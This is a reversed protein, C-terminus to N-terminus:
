KSYLRKNEFALIALGSYDISNELERHQMNIIDVVGSCVAFVHGHNITTGVEAKIQSYNESGYYFSQDSEVISIGSQTAVYLTPIEGKQTVWIDNIEFEFNYEREWSVTGVPPSQELVRNGEALFIRGDQCVFCDKGSETLYTSFYDKGLKGYCFGAATVVGLYDNNAEISIINNSLLGGFTSFTEVIGSLDVPEAIPCGNAKVSNWNIKLLGSDLTGIILEDLYVDSSNCQQNL